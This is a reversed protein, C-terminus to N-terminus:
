YCPVCAFSSLIMPVATEPLVSFGEVELAAAFGSVLRLAALPASPSLKESSKRPCICLPASVRVGSGM